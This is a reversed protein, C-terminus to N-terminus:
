SRRLVGWRYATETGHASRSWCRADDEAIVPKGNEIRYGYRATRGRM